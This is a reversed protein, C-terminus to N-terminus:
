FSNAWAEMDTNYDKSREIWEHTLLENPLPRTNPDKLLCADIFAEASPDRGEPLLKPAAKTSIAIAFNLFTIGNNGDTHYQSMPYEGHALEIAIIGLSWVDSKLTPSVHELSTREPSMYYLFAGEDSATIGEEIWRSMSHSFDGLKIEGKSNCLINTPKLDGYVIGHADYLYVLGSLISFAVTRIVGLDLPGTAEVIQRMSGKDMLEMCIAVDPNQYFVGYISVVYESRCTHMSVLDNLLEQREHRRIGYACVKMAMITKTPKHKVLRTASVYRTSGQGLTKLIIFDQLKFAPRPPQSEAGPEPPPGHSGPYSTM